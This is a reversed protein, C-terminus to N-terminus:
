KSSVKKKSATVKKKTKSVKKKTKSVKKKGGEFKAQKSPSWIYPSSPCKIKEIYKLLGDTKERVKRIEDIAKPGTFKNKNADFTHYLLALAEQAQFCVKEKSVM